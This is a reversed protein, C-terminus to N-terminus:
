PLETFTLTLSTPMALQSVPQVILEVVSSSNPPLILDLPSITGEPSVIETTQGAFVLLISTYSGSLSFSPTLRVKRYDTSQNRISLAEFQHSTEKLSNFSIVARANESLDASSSLTFDKIYPTSSLDIPRYLIAQQKSTVGLVNDTSNLRTLLRPTLGSVGFFTLAVIGVAVVTLGLDAFFNSVSAQRENQAM